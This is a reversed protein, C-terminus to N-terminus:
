DGPDAASPADSDKLSPLRAVWKALRAAQGRRRVAYEDQGVHFASDPEPGPWAQSGAQTFCRDHVLCDQRILPWICDRLFWQDINPTEMTPSRYANLMPWISPLFGTMGGWMGALILDTHTWWDRMVHFAKGSAIWAQVAGAERPSVLADVDRILFRDVAPDDAVKFRWALRQRLPQGPAELRVECGLGELAARLDAPVTEDVHFRLQWGPYIEPAALANDIAGRLYRPNAGFLTFAIVQLGGPRSLVARMAERSARRYKLQLASTGAQRAEDYAGQRALDACLGDWAVFNAPDRELLQRYCEIARDPNGSRSQCVAANLLIQLDEPHTALGSELIRAAALPDGSLFLYYGLQLFLAAPKVVSQANLDQLVAQIAAPHNNTQWLEHGLRSWEPPVNM